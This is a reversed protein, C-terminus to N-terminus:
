MEDYLRLTTPPATDAFFSPSFAALDAAVASCFPSAKAPNPKSVYPHQPGLAMRNSPSNFSCASCANLSSVRLVKPQHAGWTPSAARWITAMARMFPIAPAKRPEAACRRCRPPRVSPSKVLSSMTSIRRCEVVTERVVGEVCRACWRAGVLEREIM